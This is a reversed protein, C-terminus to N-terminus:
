EDNSDKIIREMELLKDDNNLRILKVGQTNRGIVSINDITTRILNGVSSIFIVEDDPQVQNAAILKGNRKSTQIAIVGKGGRKRLSFEKIPTQKGYGNETATLVNGEEKAVILSIVKQKEDLRMGIVGQSVRGLPRADKESFRIAKGADSFLMIEKTGDTIEVNVVKDKEKLKIAKIGNKMPRSYASLPTKKVTGRETAMFVFKNEEFASVPLVAQIREEKELPLLNVIPRGKANRGARPLRYVKIWYVKGYSSFCLLTDHTNAVFLKSIFDEEKFSTAKKGTGGRRQSRYVDLPQTKAYGARL